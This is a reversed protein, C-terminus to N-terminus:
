ALSVFINLGKSVHYQTLITTVLPNRMVNDYRNTGCHITAHLCVYERLDLYTNVMTQVMTNSHLIKSRKSNITPHIRLKPPPDSNGKRARM